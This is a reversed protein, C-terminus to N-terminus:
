RRRAYRAARTNPPPVYEEQKRKEEVRKKVASARTGHLPFAEESSERWPDEEVARTGSPLFSEVSSERWPDEEEGDQGSPRGGQPASALESTPSEFEELMKVPDLSLRSADGGLRREIQEDDTELTRRRRISEREHNDDGLLHPQRGTDDGDGDGNTDATLLRTVNEEETMTEPVTMPENMINIAPGEGSTGMPQAALNPMASSRARTRIFPGDDHTPVSGGQAHARKRKPRAPTSTVPPAETPRLAASSGMPSMPNANGPGILTAQSTSPENITVREDEYDEVSFLSSPRAQDDSEDPSSEEEENPLPRIVAMPGRLTRDYIYLQELRPREERRSKEIMTDLRERNKKSRYHERWSEAPHRTVWAYERPMVHALKVMDEYIKHGLRGGRRANPIKIALYRCLNEEDAKTYNTRGPGSGRMPYRMIPSHQFVGRSICKHIFTVDEVRIRRYKKNPHSFYADQLTEAPYNTDVIVMDAGDDTGVAKGGHEQALRIINVKAASALSEHLFFKIQEGNEHAFVLHADDSM